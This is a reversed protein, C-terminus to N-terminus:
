SEKVLTQAPPTNSRHQASSQVWPFWCLAQAELSLAAGRVPSGCPSVKKGLEGDKYKAALNRPPVDDKLGLM